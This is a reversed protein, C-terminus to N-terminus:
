VPETPQPQTETYYYARNITTRQTLENVIAGSRNIYFVNNYTVSYLGGNINITYTNGNNVVGTPAPYTITSLSIDLDCSLFSDAKVSLKPWDGESVYGGLVRGTVGKDLVVQYRINYAPTQYYQPLYEGNAQESYITVNLYCTQDIHYKVETAAPSIEEGVLCTMDRPQVASATTTGLALIICLLLFIYKRM